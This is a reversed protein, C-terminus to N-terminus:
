SVGDIFRTCLARDSYHLTVLLLVTVDKLMNLAACAIERHTHNPTAISIFDIRDDPSRLKEAHILEHFSGYARDPAIGMAVASDRSREPDSSLAGATLVAQRDLTAATVHVKGIFGNGGGGVLGMRLPREYQQERMPERKELM